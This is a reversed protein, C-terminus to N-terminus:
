EHKKARLREALLKRLTIEITTEIKPSSVEHRAIKDLMLRIQICSAFKPCIKSIQRHPLSCFECRSQDHGSAPCQYISTYPKNNISPLNPAQQSLYEARDNWRIESNQQHSLYQVRNNWNPESSQPQPLYEVRNNWGVRPNQQSIYGAQNSWNLEPNRQQPLYEVRNDWCIAPNQQQSLYGAQNNWGIESNQQQFVLNQSTIPPIDTAQVQYPYPNFFQNPQYFYIPM